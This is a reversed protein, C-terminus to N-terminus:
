SWCMTRLANNQLENSSHRHFLQWVPGMSRWRNNMTITLRRRRSALRVAQPSAIWHRQIQHKWQHNDNSHRLEPMHHQKFWMRRGSKTTSMTMRNILQRITPSVNHLYYHWSQFQLWMAILNPVPASAFSRYQCCIFHVRSGYFRWISVALENVVSLLWVNLQTRAREGESWRHARQIFCNNQRIRNPRHAKTLLKISWFRM